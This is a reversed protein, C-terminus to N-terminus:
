GNDTRQKDIKRVQQKEVLAKRQKFAKFTEDKSQLLRLWTYRSKDDVFSVFYRFGGMAEVRSPGWCYSHIYDLVDDAILVKSFKSRQKKGFVCHECFELNAIKIGSLLGRKSLFQMGKEGMHGLRMHLIKTMEQHSVSVCVAFSSLTVGEFVYLTNRKIGKLVLESGRYISLEGDSFVGNYGLDDLTGLSILNKGLTPVHRM